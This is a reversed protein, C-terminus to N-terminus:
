LYRGWWGGERHDPCRKGRTVHGDTDRARTVTTVGELAKESKVDISAHRLHRM